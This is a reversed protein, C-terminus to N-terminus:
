HVQIREQKSGWQGTLARYDDVVLHRVGDLPDDCECFHRCDGALYRLCYMLQIWVDDCRGHGALRCGDKM